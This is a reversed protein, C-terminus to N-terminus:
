CMECWGCICSEAMLGDLDYGTGSFGQLWAEFVRHAHSSRDSQYVEGPRVLYAHLRYNISGSGPPVSAGAHVWYPLCIMSSGRVFKRKAFASGNFVNIGNGSCENNAVIRIIQENDQNHLM